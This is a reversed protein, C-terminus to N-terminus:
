GSWKAGLVTNYVLISGVTVKNKRLFCSQLLRACWFVKKPLDVLQPTVKWNHFALITKLTFVIGCCIWRNHKCSIWCNSWSKHTEVTSYFCWQHTWYYLLGHQLHECSRFVINMVAVVAFFYSHKCTYSKKRAMSVFCYIATDTSTKISRKPRFQFM